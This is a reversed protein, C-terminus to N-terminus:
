HGRRYKLLWDYLEPKEYVDSIYYDRSPLITLRPHNGEAGVAKIMDESEKLPVLDYKDGHFAWIPM